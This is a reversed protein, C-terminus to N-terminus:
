PEGPRNREISIIGAPRLVSVHLGPLFNATARYEYLASSGGRLRCVGVQEGDSQFRAWAAPIPRAQAEVFFEEIRRGIIEHPPVGLLESAARNFDVFRREDDAVLIVDRVAAAAELLIESRGSQCYLPNWPANPQRSARQLLKPTVSFALGARKGLTRVIRQVQRTTVGISSSERLYRSLLEVTARSLPMAERRGPYSVAGEPLRIDDRRVSSVEAASGGTELLLMLVVRERDKRCASKLRLVDNLTLSSNTLRM